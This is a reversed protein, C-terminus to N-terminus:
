TDDHSFLLLADTKATEFALFNYKKAADYMSHLASELEPTLAQHYDGLKHLVKMRYFDVFDTMDCKDLEFWLEDSDRLPEKGETMIRKVERRIVRRFQQETIKM